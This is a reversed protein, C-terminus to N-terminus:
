QMAYLGLVPMPGRTSGPAQWIVIVAVAMVRLAVKALETLLRRRRM